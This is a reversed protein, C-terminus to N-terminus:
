RGAAIHEAGSHALKYRQYSALQTLLVGPYYFNIISYVGLGALAMGRAGLQCMGVGHGYGSGQVHIVGQSYWISQIKTSKVLRTGAASRFATAPITFTRRGADLDITVLRGSEDAVGARVNELENPSLPQSLEGSSALAALLAAAPVEAGWAMYPSFPCYPDRVAQLYPQPDRLENGDSTVGGDCSSYYANVLQNGYVMVVGRTADVADVVAESEADIGDYAQDAEGARLDFGLDEHAGLRAVAYTRAVIAQAQLAAPPTTASVESGVVSYLYKELEVVNILRLSDESDRIVLISGRYSLGDLTLTADTLPSILIQSQTAVSGALVLGDGQARVDIVTTVDPTLLPASGPEYPRVILGGASAVVAENHHGALLIRLQTQGKAPVAQGFLCILLAILLSAPQRV